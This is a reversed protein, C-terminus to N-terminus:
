PPRLVPSKNAGCLQRHKMRWSFLNELGCVKTAAAPNNPQRDGPGLLQRYGKSSRHSSTRSAESDADQQVYHMHLNRSYFSSEAALANADPLFRNIMFSPSSSGAAEVMKLKSADLENVRDSKELIDIAESLSLTDDVADSFGDGVADVSNSISCFSPDNVSCSGGAHENILVSGGAPQHHHWRGPPPKPRPPMDASGIQDSGSGSQAKPKGPVQEWSFPVRESADSRALGRRSIISSYELDHSCSGAAHRRVSLLPLNLNLKKLTKQNNATTREGDM